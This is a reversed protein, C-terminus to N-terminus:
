VRDIERIVTYGDAGEGVEFFNARENGWKEPAHLSMLRRGATDTFFMAHGGNKDFVPTDIHRWPGLVSGSESIAGLVVYNDQLYPSWTLFLRGDSLTQVFPADSGYRTAPKGQWTIHHPTRASVPVEDSRFLIQPDGALEKLDPTLPAACIEGVYADVKADYCNPWDHSYIIYPVEGEVFLTGDICGLPTVPGNKLPLFPGKPTDAVAVQTGRMGDKGLLTVFLYYRGRYPHVEGAWVDKYAWFDEPIEFAVGGESFEALDRSTYYSLTREGTTVYLYYVGDLYVIYPDRVRIEERKM